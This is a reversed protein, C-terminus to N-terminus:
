LCRAWTVNREAGDNEKGLAGWQYMSPFIPNASFNTWIKKGYHGISLGSCVEQGICYLTYMNFAKPITAKSSEEKCLYDRGKLHEQSASEGEWTLFGLSASPCYPLTSLFAANKKNIKYTWTVFTKLAGKVSKGSTVVDCTRVLPADQAQPLDICLQKNRGLLFNFLPLIREKGMHCSM